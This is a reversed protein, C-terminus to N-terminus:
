EEAHRRRRLPDAPRRPPTQLALVGRAAHIQALCRAIAPSRPASCDHALLHVQAHILEKPEQRQMIRAVPHSIRVHMGRRTGRATRRGEGREGEYDGGTLPRRVIPM